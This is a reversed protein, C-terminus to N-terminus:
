RTPTTLLNGNSLSVRCTGSCFTHMSSSIARKLRAASKPVSILGSSSASWALLRCLITICARQVLLVTFTLQIPCEALGVYGLWAALCGSLWSGSTSPRWSWQEAAASSGLFGNIPEDWNARSVQHAAILQNGPGTLITAVPSGCVCYSRCPTIGGHNGYLM